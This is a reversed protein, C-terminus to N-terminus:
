PTQYREKNRMVRTIDPNRRKGETRVYVDIAARPVRLTSVRFGPRLLSDSVVKADM